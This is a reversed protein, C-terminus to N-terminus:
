LFLIFFTLLFLIFLFHLHSVTIFAFKVIIRRINGADVTLCSQFFLSCWSFRPTGRIFYGTMFSGIKTLRTVGIFSVSRCSLELTITWIRIISNRNLFINTIITKQAQRDSLIILMNLTAFLSLYKIISFSIFRVFSTSIQLYLGHYIHVFFALFKM